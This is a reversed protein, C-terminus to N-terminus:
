IFPQLHENQYAEIQGGELLVLREARGAQPPVGRRLALAGETTGAPPTRSFSRLRPYLSESLSQTM